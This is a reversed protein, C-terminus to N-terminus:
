LPEGWAWGDQRNDPNSPQVGDERMRSQQVQM